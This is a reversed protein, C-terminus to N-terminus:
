ADVNVGMPPTGDFGRAGFIRWLSLRGAPEQPEPGLDMGGREGLSLRRECLHVEWTGTVQKRTVSGEPWNPFSCGSEATLEPSSHCYSCNM